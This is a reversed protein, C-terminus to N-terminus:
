VIRYSYDLLFYGQGAPPLKGTKYYDGGLVSLSGADKIWDTVEGNLSAFITIGYIGPTLQIKPLNIEIQSAAKTIQQFIEGSADNSIWAVRDGLNNDIGIDIRLNNIKERNRVFKLIIKGSDGSTFSSVKEGLGNAFILHTFYIVGNGNRDKRELLSIESQEKASNLYQGLVAVTAGEAIIRGEELLLSLNCLNRIAAMNHSVFLVTRGEKASVEEMKGLCKQQFQADGVALVEDVILIEPELHAAVAFALRVYM